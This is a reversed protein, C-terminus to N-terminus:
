YGDKIFNEVKLNNIFHTSLLTDISSDVLWFTTSGSIVGWTNFNIIALIISYLRKWVCSDDLKTPANLPHKGQFYKDKLNKAQLARM